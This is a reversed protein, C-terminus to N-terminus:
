LPRCSEPGRYGLRSNPIYRYCGDKFGSSYWRYVPSYLTLSYGPIESLLLTVKASIGGGIATRPRGVSLTM